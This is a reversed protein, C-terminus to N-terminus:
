INVSNAANYSNMERQCENEFVTLVFHTTPNIHNEWESLHQIVTSSPILHLSRMIQIDEDGHIAIDRIAKLESGKDFKDAFLLLKEKLSNYQEQMDPHNIIFNGMKAIWLSNKRQKEDKTKYGIVHKLCENITVCLQGLAFDKECQFTSYIFLKLLVLSKIYSWLLYYTISALEKLLSNGKSYADNLVLVNESMKELEKLEEEIENKNM